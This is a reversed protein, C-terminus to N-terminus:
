VMSIIRFFRKTPNAKHEDYMKKLSYKKQQIKKTLLKIEEISIYHVFLKSLIKQLKFINKTNYVNYIENLKIQKRNKQSLLFLRYKEIAIGMMGRSEILYSYLKDMNYGCSEFINIDQKHRDSLSNLSHLEIKKIIELSNM